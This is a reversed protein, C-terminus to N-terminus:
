HLIRWWCDRELKGQGLGAEGTADLYAGYRRGQDRSLNAHVPGSGRKGGAEVGHIGKLQLVTGHLALLRM